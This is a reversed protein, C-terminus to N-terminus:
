VAEKSPSFLQKVLEIIEFVLRICMIASGAPVSAYALAMPFELAPTLQGRMMVLSTVKWGYIVLFVGMGFWLLTALLDFFVKCRPGLLETVIEIRLHRKKRVAYGTSIWTLWIFVYRGVEESWSLSSQFVYRMVVQLFITVVMAFLMFFLFNEEFDDIIKGWRRM